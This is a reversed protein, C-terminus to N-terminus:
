GAGSEDSRTAEDRLQADGSHRGHQSWQNSHENCQGWTFFLTYMTLM